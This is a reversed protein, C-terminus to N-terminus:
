PSLAEAVARAIEGCLRETLEKTPGEVMVRCLDETGSYRVLVRGEEGLAREVERICRAVRPLTALDPKSRVRVNVLTQPYVPMEAALESLPRGKRVLIWSLVMGTLIGDGTGLHDRFILHGSDEGALNGGLRVMDEFVHRDGVRSAHHRIGQRRCAERLGLNSMVTSVLLDGALRGEAKLAKACVFLIQDGTCRHGTEDVAICRDGDGDFALGLDAKWARVTAQLLATDQSGCGLNINVGNPAAGVTRIEAGLRSFVRPAPGCTAGNATDLVIRRGRLDVAGAGTGLLFSIYADEAEPMASGRGIGEPPPLNETLPRDDLLTELAREEEDSLKRGGKGFIKIGNDEFPNHSASLVVGAEAGTGAVLCAVGPTPLVGLDVVEGGMSQIGASLASSLMGGSIRTDRGLLIRPRGKPGRMRLALAQGVRFAGVGDMPPRNARGRIGDTGFLGGM